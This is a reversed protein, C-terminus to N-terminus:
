KRGCGICVCIFFVESAGAALLEKACAEVTSGTTYIDDVICVREGKELKRLTDFAGNLSKRREGEGLNKLAATKKRRILIDSATPIGTKASLIKSLEEAQNYGRIRLRSRHIPVPVFIDPAMHGIRDGLKEFLEEGYFDLYERRHRNKVASMSRTMLRDYNILAYGYKFSRERGRCDRCFAEDEEERPLEKGCCM